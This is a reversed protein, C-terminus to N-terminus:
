KTPTFATGSWTGKTWAEDKMNLTGSLKGPEGATGNNVPNPTLLFKAKKATQSGSEGLWTYVRVVDVPTDEEDEHEVLYSSLKNNKYLDLEYDVNFDKSLTFKPSNKRNIYSPEYTNTDTPQDWSLLNDFETWYPAESTGQIILNEVEYGWVPLEANTDGAM